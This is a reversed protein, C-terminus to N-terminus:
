ENKGNSKGFLMSKVDYGGSGGKMQAARGPGIMKMVLMGLSPTYQMLYGLAFFFCKAHKPWDALSIVDALVDFDSLVSCVCVQEFGTHKDVM